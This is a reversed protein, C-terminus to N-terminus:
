SASWPLGAVPRWVPPGDISVLVAATKSFVLAPPDNKVPVKAAAQEAGEVALMAELRDLSMSAPGNSAMSQFGQRYSEANGPASPFSAKSIRINRFEVIRALKHVHTEASIGIVGFVPEKAGPPLVSVAARTELRNGDWNELQPQYLTYKAGGFDAARPWSDPTVEAAAPQVGGEQARVPLVPFIAAGILLVFFLYARTKKEM